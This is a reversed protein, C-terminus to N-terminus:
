FMEEFMEKEKKDTKITRKSKYEIRDPWNEVKDM